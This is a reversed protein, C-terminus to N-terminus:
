PARGREPPPLRLIWVALGLATLLLVAGIAPQGGNSAIDAGACAAAALAYSWLPRDRSSAQASRHLFVVALVAFILVTAFDFPTSM